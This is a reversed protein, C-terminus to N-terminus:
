CCLLAFKGLVKLSSHAAIILTFKQLEKTSSHGSLLQLKQDSGNKTTGLAATIVPVIKKWM